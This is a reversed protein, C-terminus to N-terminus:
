HTRSQNYRALYASSVKDHPIKLFKSVQTLFGRLYVPAPLRAYNEEEIASLYTRSIKTYESLEELSIKRAERIRRIFIGKWEVEQAIEQALTEDLEPNSNKQTFSSSGTSSNRLATFPGSQANSFPDLDNQMRPPPPATITLSPHNAQPPTYARSTSPASFLEQGVTAADLSPASANERDFDTNPPVLLEIDSGDSEMPPVRDISVIKASKLPSQSMSLPAVDMEDSLIGNKKDYAKRREPHSLTQYAEEISQMLSQTEEESVLTYLAVSDRRYAAKAQLYATRIEQPSANPSVELLEYFNGPTDLM